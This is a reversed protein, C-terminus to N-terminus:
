ESSKEEHKRIDRIFDAGSDLEGIQELLQQRRKQLASLEVEVAALERQAARKLVAEIARNARGAQKSGLAELIMYIALANKPTLPTVGTERNAIVARTVGSQRALEHQSLPPDFSERIAKLYAPAQWFNEASLKTKSGM